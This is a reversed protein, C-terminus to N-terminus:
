VADDWSPVPVAVSLLLIFIFCLMIEKNLMFFCLTKRGIGTDVPMSTDLAFAIPPTWSNSVVFSLSMADTHSDATVQFRTVLAPLSRM